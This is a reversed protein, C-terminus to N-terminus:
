VFLQITRAAKFTAEKQVQEKLLTETQIESVQPIAAPAPDVYALTVNSSTPIRINDRNVPEANIYILFMCIFFISTVIFATGLSSSSDRSINVPAKPQTRTLDTDKSNEKGSSSKTNDIYNSILKDSESRRMEDSLVDYAERILLFKEGMENENINDTNKDPHYRQMLVRYAARIVTPSATQAVELIDYYNKLRNNKSM